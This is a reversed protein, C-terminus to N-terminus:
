GRFGGYNLWIFLPMVSFGIQVPAGTTIPQPASSYNIIDVNWGGTDLDHAETYKGLIIDSRSQRTLLKDEHNLVPRAETLM